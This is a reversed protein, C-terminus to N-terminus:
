GGFMMPAYLVKDGDFLETNWGDMNLMNKGNILVALPGHRKELTTGSCHFIQWTLDSLTSGASLNYERWPGPQFLNMVLIKV